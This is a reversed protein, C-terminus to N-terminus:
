YLKIENLKKIRPLNQTSKSAKKSAPTTLVEKYQDYIGLGPIYLETNISMTRAAEDFYSDNDYTRIWLPYATISSTIGGTSSNYYKGTFQPLMSVAGDCPFLTVKIGNIGSDYFNSLILENENDSSVTASMTYTGYLFNDALDYEDADYDGALDSLNIPDCPTFMVRWYLGVLYGGSVGSFYEALANGNMDVISGAPISLFVYEGYNPVYNQKITMVKGSISVNDAPVDVDAGEFYYSTYMPIDANYEVPENFTLVIEFEPDKNATNSVGPSVSSLEPAHTDATIFASSSAIEGQVGDTNVPLAYVKYSTNQTLGSIAVSGNLSAADDFVVQKAFVQGAANLKLLGAADPLESEDTAPIVAIFLRGVTALSYDIVASSDAISSVSVTATSAALMTSSENAKQWDKECSVQILALAVLVFTMTFIKIKTRKM